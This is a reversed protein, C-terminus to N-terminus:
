DSDNIVEMLTWDRDRNLEVGVKKMVADCDLCRWVSSNKEQSYISNHEQTFRGSGHHGLCWVFKIM